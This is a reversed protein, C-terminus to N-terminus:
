QVPPLYSRSILLHSGETKLNVMQYLIHKCQFQVRKLLTLLYTAPPIALIAVEKGIKPFDIHILAGSLFPYRLDYRNVLLSEPPTELM